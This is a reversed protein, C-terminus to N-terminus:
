EAAEPIEINGNDNNIDHSQSLENAAGPWTDVEREHCKTGTDNRAHSETNDTNGQEPPAVVILKAPSSQQRRLGDALGCQLVVLREVARQSRDLQPLYTSHRLHRFHATLALNLKERLVVYHMEAVGQPRSEVINAFSFRFQELGAEDVDGTLDSVSDLLDTVVGEVAAWDLVGFVSLLFHRITQAQDGVPVLCRCGLADRRLQHDPVLVGPGWCGRESLDSKGLDSNGASPNKTM